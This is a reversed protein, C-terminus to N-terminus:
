PAGAPRSESQPQSTAAETDFLNHPLGAPPMTLRWQNTEWTLLIVVERVPERVTPDLEVRAGVAYLKSGDRPNLVARVGNITVKQVSQWAREFQDRPFPDDRASWLMRFAEYDGSACTQIVDRIFANVTEDEVRLEAPFDLIEPEPPPGAEVEPQEERECGGGPLFLM